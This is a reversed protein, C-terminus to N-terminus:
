RRYASPTHSTWTSSWVGWPTYPSSRCLGASGTVLNVFGPNTRPGIKAEYDVIEQQVKAHAENDLRTFQYVTGEGYYERAKYVKAVLAAGNDEELVKAVKSLFVDQEVATM